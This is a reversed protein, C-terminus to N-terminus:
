VGYKMYYQKRRPAVEIEFLDNMAIITSFYKIHLLLVLIYFISLLITFLKENQHPEYASM